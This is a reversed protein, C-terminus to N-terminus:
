AMGLYLPMSLHKRPNPDKKLKKKLVMNVLLNEFGEEGIQM